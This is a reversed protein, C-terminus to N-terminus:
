GVSEPSRIDVLSHIDVLSRAYSLQDADSGISGAPCTSFVSSCTSLSGLTTCPLSSAQAMSPATSISAQISPEALFALPQWSQILFEVEPVRAACMAWM